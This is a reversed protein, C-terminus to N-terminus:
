GPRLLGLGQSVIFLFSQCAIPLLCAFDRAQTIAAAMKRGGAAEGAAAM